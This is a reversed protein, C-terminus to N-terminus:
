YSIIFYMYMYYDPVHVEKSKNVHNIDIFLSFMIAGTYHFYLVPTVYIITVSVM